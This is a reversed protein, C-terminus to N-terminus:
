EYTRYGAVRSKAYASIKVQNSQNGGLTMIYMVGKIERECIYFGVHGRWDTPSGRHFIVVDGLKPSDTFEGWKLWSKANLKGTYKNESERQCWNMFASCWAYSDDLDFGFSKFFKDVEPNSLRGETEQLGYLKLAIEYAKIKEM